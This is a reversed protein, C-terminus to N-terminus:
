FGDTQSKKWLQGHEPANVQRPLLSSRTLGSLPIDGAKGISATKRIGNPFTDAVAIGISWSLILEKRARTVAVYILRRQEDVHAAQELLEGREPGPIIEDALGCVIVSEEELGKAGHLTMISVRPTQEEDLLPARTGIRYRLKELVNALTPAEMLGAVQLAARRLLDLDGQAKDKDAQDLRERSARDPASEHTRAPRGPMSKALEPDFLAEIVKDLNSDGLTQKREIYEKARLRVNQQGDGSVAVTGDNIGEILDLGMRGSSVLSEFAGVNRHGEPRPENGKLSFWARLAIRDAENGLLTAFMFRERVFHTGLVEERFTTAADSGVLAKLRYGIFQRTVLVLFRDTSRARIVEALGEIEQDLNQWMVYTVTGDEARTPIMPAKTSGAAAAVENALNVIRIACRFNDPLPISEVANQRAEDNPFATIGEPHNFRFGYISQDNDGLVAISGSEDTIQDVFTQECETLDQYEDVFVHSFRFPRLDGQIIASTALFVVEGVLMGGYLRLWHDVAGEFRADDLTGRNAWYAQLKRLEQERAGHTPFSPVRDAIDYLMVTEEHELLFRFDRGHVADPNDRLLHTAHSHLTRVVPVDDPDDGQKPVFAARLSSAIVRTFTGVFIKAKETVVRTDVLRLVRKQLCTTKGAGPGALVKIVRSDSLILRRSHEGSIGELWRPEQSM